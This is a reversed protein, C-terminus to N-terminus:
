EDTHMEDDSVGTSEQLTLQDTVYGLVSADVHGECGEILRMSDQRSIHVEIQEGFAAWLDGLLSISESLLSPYSVLIHQILHIM